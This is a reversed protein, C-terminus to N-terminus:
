LTAVPRARSGSRFTARRGLYAGGERLVDTQMCALGGGFYIGGGAPDFGRPPAAARGIGVPPADPDSPPGPTASAFLVTPQRDLAVRGLPAIRGSPAGDTVSVVDVTRGEVDARLSARLLARGGTVFTTDVRAIPLRSFLGITEGDPTAYVHVHSFTDGLAAGLAPDVHRVRVLDAGLALRAPARTPDLQTGDVEVVVLELEAVGAARDGRLVGAVLACSAFCAGLPVERNALLSAVGGLFTAAVVAPGLDHGRSGVGVAYAYALAAAVVACCALREALRPHTSRALRM